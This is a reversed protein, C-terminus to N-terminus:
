EDVRTLIGRIPTVADLMRAPRGRPCDVAAVAWAIDPRSSPKTSTSAGSSREGRNAPVLDPLCHASSREGRNRGPRTCRCTHRRAVSAATSLVTCTGYVPQIAVRVLRMSIRASGSLSASMV